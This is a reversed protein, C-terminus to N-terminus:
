VMKSVFFLFYIDACIMCHSALPSVHAKGTPSFRVVNVVAAHRSLTALYEVRPAHADKAAASASPVPKSQAANPLPTVLWM